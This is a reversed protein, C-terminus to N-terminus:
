ELLRLTTYFREEGRDLETLGEEKLFLKNAMQVWKVKKTPAFALVLM